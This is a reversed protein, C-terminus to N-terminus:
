IMNPYNVINKRNREIERKRTQVDFISFPMFRTVINYECSRPSFLLFWCDDTTQTTIARENIDFHLSQCRAERRVSSEGTFGSHRRRRRFSVLSRSKWVIPRFFKNKINLGAENASTQALLISIRCRTSFHWQVHLSRSLAFQASSCM